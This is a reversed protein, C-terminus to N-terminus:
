SKPSLLALPQEPCMGLANTGGEYCGGLPIPATVM